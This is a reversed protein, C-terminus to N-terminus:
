AGSGRRRVRRYRKRVINRGKTYTKYSKTHRFRKERMNRRGM